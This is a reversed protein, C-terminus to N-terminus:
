QRSGLIAKIVTDRLVKKREGDYGTKELKEIFRQVLDDELLVQIDRFEYRPSDACRNGAIRMTEEVVEKEGMGTVKGNLFGKVTLIVRAADHLHRFHERVTELPATNQFPDFDIVVDQFHPTDLRYEQPPQGPEFINVARQGTERKTISIPSGPYVFYGGSELKWVNFRSHFHGALIYDLKLGKFYSLRVPMYRGDGEDGFDGRSFFADLLEGHYILINQKDVPLHDRLIHLKHVIDEGEIPEFPFGWIRVDEYAFPDGFVTQTVVDEGFWTEKRYSDKDHNGPILVIKLGTNSFVERMKPRLNEADVGKDFLDGSIVFIEVNKGKALDILVVLAKWRDDGYTRLHLDATHLIKM